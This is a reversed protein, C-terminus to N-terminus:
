GGQSCSAPPIECGLGPASGPELGCDPFPAAPPPGDRFNFDLLYVADSVSGPVAGDGNADCAALCPPEVGALFTFNLLFVVDTLVAEVNGDGNCDGRRYASECEDPIGNSNEDRSLPPTRRNFSVSVANRNFGVLDMWGDGDLDAAKVSAMTAGSSVIGRHVFAGAGEDLLV